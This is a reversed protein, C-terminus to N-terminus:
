RGGRWSRAPAFARGRAEARACWTTCSTWVRAASVTVVEERLAKSLLLESDLRALALLARAGLAWNRIRVAKNLRGRWGEADFGDIQPAESAPAEVHTPSSREGDGEPPPQAPAALPAAPPPEAPAAPMEAPVAPPAAPPPAAMDAAPAPATAVPPPRRHVLWAAGGVVLAAVPAAVFVWRAALVGPVRGTLRSRARPGSWGAPAQPSREAQAAPPRDLAAIAEDLAAIVATATAFRVSPDSQILRAVLSDVQLPVDVEPARVRIPPPAETRQRRFMSVLDRAAFPHRGSLMEYAVIGLAYLDARTDVADMGRVAEPALYGLTGFIEGAGTLATPASKTARSESSLLDVNVKALGFDILKVQGEADLLINQPKVDRHVIGKAHTAELASAIQRAIRLARGV